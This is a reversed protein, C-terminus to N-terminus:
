VVGREDAKPVGDFLGQSVGSETCPENEKLVGLRRALAVDGDRTLAKRQGPPIWLPARPTMGERWALWVYSTATSAEPDWGGRVMPVREAFYAIVTPPRDRFIRQYRDVGELWAARVLFAVVPADTYARHWFDTSLRFPPNTIVAGIDLDPRRIIDLGLSADEGVFSGVGDGYGYPFVDSAFVGGSYEAIVEAMLGRNCAPEWVRWAKFDLGMAPFVHEFLARTAWPPTPFDDLSDLAEHRQQMVASSRNQSM